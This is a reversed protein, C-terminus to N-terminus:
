IKLKNKKKILSNFPEEWIRILYILVQIFKYKIRYRMTTKHSRIILDEHNNIISQIKKDYFEDNSISIIKNKVEGFRYFIDRGNIINEYVNKKIISLNFEQHGWNEIKNIINKKNGISTFHYGGPYLIKLRKSEKRIKNLSKSKIQSYKFISSGIWKNNSYSNLFYKFEKQRCVFPTQINNINKIIKYEPIEDIDSFIITDEDKCLKALPIHICERHYSELVWNLKEKDYYNHKNLHERIKKLNPDRKKNLYQMLLDHNKHKDKIKYYHIKDIYKKFLHINNEFNFEKKNGAFSENAEVIIFKDVFDYLYELRIELIDLEQFFLFCDIIM